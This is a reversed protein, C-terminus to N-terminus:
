LNLSKASVEVFLKEKARRVKKAKALYDTAEDRYGLPLLLVSKLGQAKLQLLEDLAPANFGEMPTSDVEEIAAAVLAYGLAIYAQRAAWNFNDEASRSLILKLYNDKLPALSEATVGRQAVIDAIYDNMHQETVNSWATFVLLHSCEVIQPQKCISENIKKRLVEDEIVLITYPQIGISSASLRIAELITEVKQAPVKKGNMRKTAYRWNLQKILEM